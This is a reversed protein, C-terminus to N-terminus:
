DQNKYQYKANAVAVFEVAFPWAAVLSHEHGLELLYYGLAVLDFSGAVVEFYAALEFPREAVPVLEPVLPLQQGAAFGIEAVIAIGAEVGVIAVLGEPETEAAEIM